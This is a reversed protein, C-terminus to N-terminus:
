KKKIKRNKNLEHQNIFYIIVAPILFFWNAIFSLIVFGLAIISLITIKWNIKRTKM